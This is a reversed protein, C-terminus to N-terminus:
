DNTVGKIAESFPIKRKRVRAYLTWYNMGYHRAWDKLCMRKGNVDYFLSTRRNKPQDRQPIWKCNGPEYGMRINIREISYEPSPMYGMDEIFNSFSHLWRDCVKIGDRKYYGKTQSPANCRAKMALWVRYEKMNKKNM